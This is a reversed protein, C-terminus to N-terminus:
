RLAALTERSLRDRVRGAPGALQPLVASLTTLIQSSWTYHDLVTQLGARRVADKEGESMSLIRQLVQAVDDPDDQKTVFGDVGDRVQEVLGGTNSVVVLAGRKRGHMRIEVPTLGFPERYALSAAALTNEWQLTCAVLEPDFAFILGADLGLQKKLDVLDPYEPSVMIVPFVKGKLRAAAKLVVDYKKYAVARGWSFVLPVDTPIQYQRLKDVIHSKDRLRFFPDTPNIGNGTPVMHEPKAGYDEVIHHSMFKSIYGLKVKPTVKSWHISVSEVMLRQPNPMPLEHTLATAHIVYIATLDVGCAEEQLTAYIPALAFLSDHCYAVSVQHRRAFNLAVAAGSASSAKWNEIDGIDAVGWPASPLYGRTFNVLYAFQGGMRAIEDEAHKQFQPDRREHERAYAIEAFYPTLNIGERALEEKLKPLAALHGRTVTAVGGGFTQIGEFTLHIVALDLARGAVPDKPGSVNERAQM